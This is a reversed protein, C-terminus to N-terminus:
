HKWNTITAQTYTDESARAAKKPEAAPERGRWPTKKDGSEKMAEYKGRQYDINPLRGGL